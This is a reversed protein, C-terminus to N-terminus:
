RRKEKPGLSRLAERARALHRAATEIKQLQCGTSQGNWTLRLSRNMGTILVFTELPGLREQPSVSMPVSQVVRLTQRDNRWQLRAALWDGSGGDILVTGSGDPSLLLYCAAGNEGNGTWEGAFFDQSLDPLPTLAHSPGLAALILLLPLSVRALSRIRNTRSEAKRM